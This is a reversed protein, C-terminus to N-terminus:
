FIIEKIASHKGLKGRVKKDRLSKDDEYGV